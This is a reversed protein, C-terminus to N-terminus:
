ETEATRASEEEKVKTELEIMDADVRKRHFKRALGGGALGVVGGGFLGAAAGMKAGVIFGVPGAVLSGVAAGAIPAMAYKLKSAAALNRVGSLVRGRSSDVNGAVSDVAANQENM